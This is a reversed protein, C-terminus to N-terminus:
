VPLLDEFNICNNEFSAYCKWYCLRVLRAPLTEVEEFLTNAKNVHRVMQSKLVYSYDKLTSMCYHGGGKGGRREKVLFLLSKVTNASTRHNIGTKVITVSLIHWIDSFSFRHCIRSRLEPKGSLTFESQRIFNLWAHFIRPCECLCSLVGHVVDFVM